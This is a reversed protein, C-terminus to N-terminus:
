INSGKLLLNIKLIWQNKYSYVVEKQNHNRYNCNHITMKRIEM